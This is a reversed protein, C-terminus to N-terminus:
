RSNPFAPPRQVFGVVRDFFIEIFLFNRLIDALFHDARELSSLHLM